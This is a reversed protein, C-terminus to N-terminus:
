TKEKEDDTGGTDKDGAQTKEGTEVQKERQSQKKKTGREEKEGALQETKQDKEGTETKVTAKEATEKGVTEKGATERELKDKEVEDLYNLRLETLISKLARTEEESRNGETKADLMGLMDITFRAQDLNREIKQSLPNMIKGLAIMATAHLNVILGVFLAENSIQEREEM